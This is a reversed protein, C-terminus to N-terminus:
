NKRRTTTKFGKYGKKKHLLYFCSQLNKIPIIYNVHINQIELYIHVSENKKHRKQQINVAFLFNRFYFSGEFRIKTTSFIKKFLYVFFIVSVSWNEVSKMSGIISKHPFPQGEFLFFHWLCGIKGFVNQVMLKQWTVGSIFMWYLWIPYWDISRVTIHGHGHYSTLNKLGTM